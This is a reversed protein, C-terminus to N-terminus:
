QIAERRNLRQASVGSIVERVFHKDYGMRALRNSLTKMANEKRKAKKSAFYADRDM